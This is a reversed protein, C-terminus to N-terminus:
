VITGSVFYIYRMSILDFLLYCSQKDIVYYMQTDQVHFDASANFQLSSKSHIERECVVQVLIKVADLMRVFLVANQVVAMTFGFKDDSRASYEVCKRSIAIFREMKSIDSFSLSIESKLM